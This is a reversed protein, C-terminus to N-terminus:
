FDDGGHEQGVTRDMYAVLGVELLCLGLYDYSQRRRM